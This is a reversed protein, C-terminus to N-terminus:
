EKYKYKKENKKEGSKMGKWISGHRKVEKKRWTENGEM